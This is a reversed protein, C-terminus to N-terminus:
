SSYGTSAAGDSLSVKRKAAHIRRFNHLMAQLLYEGDSARPVIRITAFKM